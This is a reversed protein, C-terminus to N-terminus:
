GYRKIFKLEYISRSLNYLFEIQAKLLEIESAMTGHLNKLVAQLKKKKKPKGERDFGLGTIRVLRKERQARFHNIRATIEDINDETIARELFDVSLIALLQQDNKPGTMEIVILVMREVSCLIKKAM